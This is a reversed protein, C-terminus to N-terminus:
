VRMKIPSWLIPSSLTKLKLRDGLLKSCYSTGVMFLYEITIWSVKVYQDYVLKYTLKLRKM